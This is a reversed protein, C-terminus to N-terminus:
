RPNMIAFAEPLGPFEENELMQHPDFSSIDRHEQAAPVDEIRWLPAGRSLHQLEGTPGFGMAYSSHPRPVMFWLKRGQDYQIQFFRPCALLLAFYCCLPVRRM